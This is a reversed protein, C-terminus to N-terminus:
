LAPVPLEGQPQPGLQASRRGTPGRTEM